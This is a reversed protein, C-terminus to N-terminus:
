APITKKLNKGKRADGKRLSGDPRTCESPNAGRDKTKTLCHGGQHDKRSRNISKKNKKKKEGGMFTTWAKKGAPVTRGEQFSSGGAQAPSKRKESPCTTRSRAEEPALKAILDKGYPLHTKGVVERRIDQPKTYRGTQFLKELLDHCRFTGIKKCRRKESAAFLRRRPSPFGRIKRTKKPSNRKTSALM